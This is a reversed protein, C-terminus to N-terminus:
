ASPAGASSATPAIVTEDFPQYRTFRASHPGNEAITLLSAAEIDAIMVPARGAVRYMELRGTLGAERLRRAADLLPLRTRDLLVAANYTVQYVDGKASTGVREIYISHTPITTEHARYFGIALFDKRM